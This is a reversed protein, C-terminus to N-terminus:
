LYKGYEVKLKAYLVATIDANWAYAPLSGAATIVLSLKGSRLYPGLDVNGQGSAVVKTITGTSGAPKQYRVVERAPLVHDPDQVTIVVTEITGLDPIAATPQNASVAIELQDLRLEYSVNKENLLGVDKGLDYDLTKVLDIDVGTAEIPEEVLTARIEPIEVQAYLLGCGALLLSAPLLLLHRRM